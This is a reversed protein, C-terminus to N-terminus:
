DTARDGSRGFPRAVKPGSFSGEGQKLRRLPAEERSPDVRSEAANGITEDQLVIRPRGTEGSKEHASINALGPV